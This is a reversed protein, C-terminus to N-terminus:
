IITMLPFLHFKQGTAVIALHGAEFGRFHSGRGFICAPWVGSAVDDSMRADLDPLMSNAIGDEYNSLEKM